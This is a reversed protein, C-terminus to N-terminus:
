IMSIDTKYENPIFPWNWLAFKLNAWSFFISTQSEVPVKIDTGSYGEYKGWGPNSSKILASQFKLVKRSKGRKQNGLMWYDTFTDDRPTWLIRNTFEAM